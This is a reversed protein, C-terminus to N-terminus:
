PRIIGLGNSIKKVYKTLFDNYETWMIDIVWEETNIKKYSNKFLNETITTYDIFRYM